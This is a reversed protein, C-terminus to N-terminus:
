SFLKSKPLAPPHQTTFMHVKDFIYPKLEAYNKERSDRRIQKVTAVSMGCYNATREDARYIPLTLSKEVADQVCFEVPSRRLTKEDPICRNRAVSKNCDSKGVALTLAKRRLFSM